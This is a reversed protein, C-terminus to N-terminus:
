IFLCPETPETTVSGSSATEVSPDYIFMSQEKPKYFKPYEPHTKIDQTRWYLVDKWFQELVPFNKEFWEESRHIRVINMELTGISDPVYEIYDAIDLDLIWMNLQVQPYYYDVIQGHKIKRRLPCKVELMVPKEIGSRDIAIGYPSGGLFSYRKGTYKSGKQIRIPDLDEYGILGFSNNQKGM